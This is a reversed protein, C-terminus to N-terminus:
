LRAKRHRLREVAAEIEVVTNMEPTVRRALNPTFWRSVQSPNKGMERALANQSIDWRKMRAMLDPIYGEGIQLKVVVM